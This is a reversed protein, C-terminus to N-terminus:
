QNGGDGEYDINEMVEMPAEEVDHELAKLDKTTDAGGKVKAMDVDPYHSKVRVLADTAAVLSTARFLILLRHPTDILRDVISQQEEGEAPVAICAMAYNAAGKLDNLEVEYGAITIQDSQL